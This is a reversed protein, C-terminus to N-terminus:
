DAGATGVVELLLPAYHSLGPVRADPDKGLEDWRRVRLKADRLPDKDFAAVEDPTMPGGQFALTGTSAPSLAAAYRPSTAVLYRKAEVHGAVLACVVEPLGRERLWAAGLHEHQLVGLEAMRPADGQACLHGVDHLLAALVELAPAGSREAAAACQLAHELQSVPEGIYGSGAALSLLAMVEDTSM